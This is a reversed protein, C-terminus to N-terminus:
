RNRPAPEERGVHKDPRLSLGDFQHEPAHALRALLAQAAFEIDRVVAAALEGPKRRVAADVIAQHNRIGDSIQGYAPYIINLYSGAQLWCGEIMKLLVPMKARRYLAFHFEWNLRIVAAYDRESNANVLKTHLRELHEVDRDILNKCAERAALAELCERLKALELVREKNLSPISITGSDSVDLVGEAVLNALADRAPTISINLAAALARITIKEGPRFRGTMIARKVESRARSGLSEPRASNDKLKRV